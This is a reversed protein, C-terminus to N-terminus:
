HRLCLQLTEGRRVGAEVSAGQAAGLKDCILPSLSALIMLSFSAALLLPALCPSTRARQRRGSPELGVTKCALAIPEGRQGGRGM